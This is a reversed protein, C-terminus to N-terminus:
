ASPAEPIDVEYIKYMGKENKKAMIGDYRALDTLVLYAQFEKSTVLQVFFGIIDEKGDIQKVFSEMEISKCILQAEAQKRDSKAYTNVEKKVSEDLTQWAEDEQLIVYRERFVKTHWTAVKTTKATNAAQVPVASMTLIIAIIVTLIKRMKM